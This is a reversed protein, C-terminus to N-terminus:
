PMGIQKHPAWTIGAAILEERIGEELPGAVTDPIQATLGGDVVLAHGTIFSSEDSALFLAAYALERMTGARGLPYVSKQRRVEFPNADLFEQKKETVIRGPLVTNVRIGQRGYDVAM